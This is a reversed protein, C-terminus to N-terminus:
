RRLAHNWGATDLFQRFRVCLGDRLYWVHAFPVDLLHGTEKAVGRYRGLVVVADGADLFEVPPASFSAWWDAELPAFVLRRVEDVGHYVGGHPLGEAQHWEVEPACLALAAEQDGREFAAYAERVVDVNEVGGAYERPGAPPLGLGVSDRRSVAGSIM